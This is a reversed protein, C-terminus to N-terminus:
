HKPKDARGKAALEEIDEGNEVYIYTLMGILMGKGIQTDHIEMIVDADIFRELLAAIFVVTETEESTMMFDPYEHELTLLLDKAVELYDLEM